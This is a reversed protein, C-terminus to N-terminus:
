TNKPATTQIYENFKKDNCKELVYLISFIFAFLRHAAEAFFQSYKALIEIAAKLEETPLQLSSPMFYNIMSAPATLIKMFSDLKYKIFKEMLSPNQILMQKTYDLDNYKSNLESIIVSIAYKKSNQIMKSIAIGVVVGINPMMTAIMDAIFNGFKDLIRNFLKCITEYVKSHGGIAKLMYNVWCQVHFSGGKFDINFINYVFSLADEDDIINNLEGIIVDVLDLMNKFDFLISLIVDGGAGGTAISLGASAAVRGANVLVDQGSSDRNLFQLPEALKDILDKLKKTYATPNLSESNEIMSNPIIKMLIDKITPTKTLLPYELKCIPRTMYRYVAYAISGTMLLGSTIGFIIALTSIGGSQSFKYISTRNMNHLEVMKIIDTYKEGNGYTYDDRIDNELRKINEHIKRFLKKSTRNESKDKLIYGVYKDYNKEIKDGNYLIFEILGNLSLKCEDM